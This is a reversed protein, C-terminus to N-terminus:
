ALHRLERLAVSLMAQDPAPVARLEALLARARALRAGKAQTWAELLAEPADHTGGSALVQAALTRQLAALDDRMAQKALGQWHGDAALQGIRERLWALELVAALGFYVGAVTQVQRECAGAIEVIDLAAFLTECAAIRQALAEPVGRAALRAARKELPKRASEDLVRPVAARLTEVAPAFRAATAAIDAELHRSRLFWTTARVTLRGAEILMEAQVEDPVVNDLAEIEQWLPVFGFIERQLLYARIVEAPPAGTTEMQAHVFTSGVRNVMSNVVHTSIIERRLPHRPMFAGFRRRLAAPFYRELATAIWPDDPLSSALMEDYLWIKSYALLVALEPGTLGRRASKREAIDEDSPLHEIARNLRGARELFRVFRAQADILRVGMRRAISLSQSQFYNDRLVLTAVEDTMEALLQNRQKGTLEGDAMALGLLIKINVEHDSTAVGASNDIADTNLRIGNLACEIRGRQTFGLNGGEGVVKCRLEAGNVRVADNARDGVEAHSEDAAKVYTGIGGNYLLDVPARLIASILENPALAPADIGLVRRAEPALPVSKLTRPFVGGGKSILSPHYDAWSSRPLAFLRSREAFSAQPDPDPDLFVHRHDFAAVLKIHRSLLMGNGFVDGSMDGIGAVTFDAAQTDLGLERFHRKVSEWAGRATIGMKKHDYGASGGSAFADGLWFGYEKSVGNAYDSFAATGKDAAVVLYSDDPDLRRVGSAPIVATGARNDTLDLLGRLYDQYCAVGERLLAEREAAARKLVFGGKSGVPVIVTNKVMQAKMLGLIETRFDERRDSWRIGGRAVRGGRLHVGEFRPSYVFIEFMPRPEPLGPVKSPDLKFSLFPRPKGDAGPRWRNTRLTALVLALLQRLVRDQNLNEVGDLAQEIAQVERGAAEDDPATPHLRLRYLSALRRAISAHSALTAEVFHQSLAFGTQQLYKTYARLVVVEDAPLRAALVLRNLDDNEIEGRFVKAFAQEFVEQVADIDIEQSGLAALGFDHLWVPEAAAPEIRYPREDLVRLGMHELMPLADSLALPAGLHFLKFRMVGSPAELPRYLVMGIPEAASLRAMMEIDPVASRAPHEERYGAPFAAGYARLLKTGRSEGAAEFLAAALDDEWRRAAAVLRRELQDEDFPPIEGPRTRVTILIQALLSESLWVSFDSATGRFAETLIAQWRRRLETTYIERPVYILCSVFREYLDRRVFLRSRQREGLHLIGTATRALEDTTIQFLEDRPYAALINDLAKAAHSSPVLGARAAVEAVKRRLLPVQQPPTMYAASTFLGLFRHEGCVAGTADFRKIGIYDLYGPRHVTSRSNSKTIVLLRPERARARVAPPLAAFSASQHADRAARLVGLGSDVVPRLREGDAGAELDHCRYGIFTFHNALLWELFAKAEALEAAALPPPSRELEAIVERLRGAMKRWDEVASRVDALAREIEAGLAEREAAEALRDVEVHMLSENVGEAANPEALAKLEGQPSRVVRLIPHIVLHVTLGRRNAAMTTSDVLFPMDDNVLEIVTHPSQWGHEEIAPNLVRMRPRASERRGAFALHSLAAGYLDEPSREALDEPDVGAYYQRVFREAQARRERPLRAKVLAVVAEIAGSEANQADRRM